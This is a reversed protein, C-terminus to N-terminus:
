AVATIPAIWGVGRLLASESVGSEARDDWVLHLVDRLEHQEFLGKVLDALEVTRQPLPRYSFVVAHLHGFLTGSEGLPRLHAALPPQPSRAVVGAILATGAPYTREPAFSIWDRVAPVEFQVPAATPSRRLRAGALGATEGAIVLAATDGGVAELCVGALESVPVAEADAQTSFRVMRSFGGQCTLGWALMAVPPDAGTELLYDAMRAGDTPFSAICGAVGVLEGLRDACDEYARGIAGLGLGLTNRPFAVATCHEAAVALTGLGDARGHLRCTMSEPPVSAAMQYHGRTIAGSRSYWTSQRLAAAGPSGGDFRADWGATLLMGRVADSPAPALRVEGRLVALEEQWRALVRTAASSVYSVQTLDVAVRRVGEQILTELTHSLHEAAERDLRGELRLGASDGERAADIKV